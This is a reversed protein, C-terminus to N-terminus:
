TLRATDVADCDPLGLERLDRLFMNPALPALDAADESVYTLPRSNIVAECNCLITEVEDYTLSARGLTKKLLQKLLRILRKWWGGWWAAILPNFRWDIRDITSTEIIKKWDLQRFARDTGM